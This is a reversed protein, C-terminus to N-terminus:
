LSVKAHGALFDKRLESVGTMGHGLGTGPILGWHFGHAQSVKLCCARPRRGRATHDAGGM